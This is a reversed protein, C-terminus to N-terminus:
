DIDKRAVTVGKVIFTGATAIITWLLVQGWTWSAIIELRALAWMIVGVCVFDMLLNALIAGLVAAIVSIVTKM